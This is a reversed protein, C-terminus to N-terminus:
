TVADEVVDEDDIEAITGDRVGERWKKAINLEFKNAERFFQGMAACRLSCFDHPVINRFHYHFRSFLLSIESSILFFIYVYM